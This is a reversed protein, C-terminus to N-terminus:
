EVGFHKKIKWAADTIKVSVNLSEGLYTEPNHAQEIGFDDVIKFCEQIILNAFNEVPNIETKTFTGDVNKEVVIDVPVSKFGAKIILEKIRENM